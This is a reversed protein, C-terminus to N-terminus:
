VALNSDSRRLSACIGASLLLAIVAVGFGSLILHTVFDMSREILNLRKMAALDGNRNVGALRNL